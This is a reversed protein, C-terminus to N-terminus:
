KKTEKLAADRTTLAAFLSDRAAFHGSNDYRLMAQFEDRYQEAAEIVAEDLNAMEARWSLRFADLARALARRTALQIDAYNKVEPISITKNLWRDAAEMAEPSPDTASSTPKKMIKEM